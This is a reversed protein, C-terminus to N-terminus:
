QSKCKLKKVRAKAKDLTNAIECYGGSLEVCYTGDDEQYIGGTACPKDNDSSTEENNNAPTSTDENSTTNEGETDDDNQKKKGYHIKGDECTSNKTMIIAKCWCSGAKYNGGREACSDEKAAKSDDSNKGSRKSTKDSTEDENTNECEGNKLKGGQDKCEKKLEKKAKQTELSRGIAGSTILGTATGLGSGLMASSAATQARTERFANEKFTTVNIGFWEQMCVFTNGAYAKRSAKPTSQDDGAFFNVTYVCDFSREDFMAGLRKCQASMLDRLKYMREEDTKVEKEANERLRGIVTGVRSSLGSDQEMCNKALTECAKIARDEASKGLCKNFTAGCEKQICDNYQNGCEVTKTYSSLKANMDRDAKIETTFLNFEEGSCSLDKRCLNLKDGFMTDGDLACKSFDSGCKTQMCKRLGMDCANQGSKLAVQQSTAFATANERAEIAERQKRIQEALDNKSANSTAATTSSLADAFQSSKNEIIEEPEEEITEVITEVPTEVVTKSVTTTTTSNRPASAIPAARGTGRSASLAPMEVLCVSFLVMLFPTIKLFSNKRTKMIETERTKKIKIQRM